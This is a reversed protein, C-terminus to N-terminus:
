QQDLSQYRLTATVFRTTGEKEGRAETSVNQVSGRGHWTKVTGDELEVTVKTIKEM